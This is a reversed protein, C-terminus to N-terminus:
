KLISVYEDFDDNSIQSDTDFYGNRILNGYYVVKDNSTCRDVLEIIKAINVICSENVKDSTILNKDILVSKVFEARKTTQYNELAQDTVKDLFPGLVPIVSLVCAKIPNTIEYVKYLTEEIQLKNNAKNFDQLDGM